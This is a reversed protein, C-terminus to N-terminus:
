VIKVNKLRLLVIKENLEKLQEPLNEIRAVESEVMSSIKNTHASIQDYNVASISPALQEMAQYEVELLKIQAERQHYEGLLVIAKKKYGEM